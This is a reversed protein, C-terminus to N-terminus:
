HIVTATSNVYTVRSTTSGYDGRAFLLEGARRTDDMIM